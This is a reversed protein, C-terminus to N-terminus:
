EQNETAPKAVPLSWTALVVGAWWMVASLVDKIITSIIATALASILFVFHQTRLKQKSWLVVSARFGLLFMVLAVGSCVDCAVVLWKHALAKVVITYIFVLFVLGWVAKSLHNPTTVKEDKM